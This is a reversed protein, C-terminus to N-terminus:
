LAHKDVDLISFGAHHPSSALRRASVIRKGLRSPAFQEGGHHEPYGLDQDRDAGDHALGHNAVFAAVLVVLFLRARVERRALAVERIQARLRSRDGRTTFVDQLQCEIFVKFPDLRQAVREEPYGVEQSIPMDESILEKTIPSM